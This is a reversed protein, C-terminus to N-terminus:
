RILFFEPTMTVAWLVDTLVEVSPDAPLNALLLSEEEKTPYRTLLALYIEEILAEPKANENQDILNEAGIRLDEILTANTSLDVAEPTSIENPRSTVIQDRNPRGLSTMLDDSELLSARIMQESGVSAKALTEGLRADTKEQWSKNQVRRANEWTLKDLEWKGPRTGAPVTESVQWSPDTVIVEDSGDEYEIRLAAFAGAANPKPGTNEAVMLFRNQGAKIQSALSTTQLNDWKEGRLIERNNLYLVFINDAAAVLGASRVKKAPKFDRRLLVKEGHMPIGGDDVSKGWVWSSPFSLKEQLGPPIIGRAFPADYGGPATGTVQWIADRFQEATLRKTRPGDYVYDDEDVNGNVAARSQYAQSTVIRRLTHKLDFGHEHFDIALWDLLDANWPETQMADLPHVIGRGMLQGWLRNVITRPVRGNEPHVLLEALQKLREQKPASADVNGIEPFLFAAVAKEGTPKDCRHLELPEDAYIAALGYAEALTWRDIFSDHCSACKMNIGLLSQSVSQSFQIPLTQGASVTGRWKIGNIFGASSDDTPAILECVMADFSKNGVLSEYLWGSIQTRGNTIFGTGAYDNRLLDNWFTLWHDAYSIERALLDDILRVRKDPATDALFALAEDPTPLLGVLDLSVRRLFTADDLPEPRERGGAALSRDIIRDIPNTRGDVAAPLEPRRPRLPPEYVPVGFTYGADWSM